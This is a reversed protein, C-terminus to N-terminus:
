ENHFNVQQFKKSGQIKSFEGFIEKWFLVKELDVDADLNMQDTMIRLIELRGIADPIGIGIEQEFCGFGRLALDISNLRNTAAIVVVQDLLEEMLM